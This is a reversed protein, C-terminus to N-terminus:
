LYTVLSVMVCIVFVATNCRVVSRTAAQPVETVYHVSMGEVCCITGVILGAPITKALMNFLDTPTLGNMISSIFLEPAAPTVDFLVGFLYGSSLSALTFFITLCFVSVGMGLVRPMVLYIMPDIGQADLVRIENRMSMGGLETAIATGSRGIVVLNVMLPGFERVIATILFPGLYESQGLRSMWFQAQMVVALGAFLALGFIFWLAQVGTFYIQRSFVDRVTRPWSGPWVALMVSSAAIAALHRVSRWKSLVYNGITGLVTM